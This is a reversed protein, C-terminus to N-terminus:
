CDFCSTAQTWGRKHLSLPLTFVREGCNVVILWWSEHFGAKLWLWQGNLVTIVMSRGGPLMLARWLKESGIKLTPGPSGQSTNVIPCASRIVWRCHVVTPDYGDPNCREHCSSKGALGLGLPNLSEPCRSVDGSCRPRHLGKLSREM